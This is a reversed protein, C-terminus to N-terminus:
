SEPVADVVARAAKDALDPDQDAGGTITVEPDDDVADVGGRPQAVPPSAQPEVDTAPVLEPKWDRAVVGCNLCGFEREPYVRDLCVACRWQPPAPDLVPPAIDAPTSDAPESPQRAPVDWSAGLHSLRVGIDTLGFSDVQHMDRALDELDDSVETPCNGTIVIKFPNSM